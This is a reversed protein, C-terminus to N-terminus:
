VRMTFNQREDSASVPMRFDGTVQDIKAELSLAMGINILADIGINSGKATLQVAEANASLGMRSEM